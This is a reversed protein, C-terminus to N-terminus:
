PHQWHKNLEVHNIIDKFHVKIFFSASVLSSNNDCLSGAKRQKAALGDTHSTGEGYRPSERSCIPMMCNPCILVFCPSLLQQLHVPPIDKEKKRDGEEKEKLM